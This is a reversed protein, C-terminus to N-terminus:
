ETAHDEHFDAARGARGVTDELEAAREAHEAAKEAHEDALAAHEEAQRRHEEAERGLERARAVNAEAQVRHASAESALRERRAARGTAARRFLVFAVVLLILVGAIVAILGIPSM